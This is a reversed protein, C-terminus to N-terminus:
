QILTILNFTPNGLKGSHSMCNCYYYYFFRRLANNKEERWIIISPTTIVFETNRLFILLFHSLIIAFSFCCCCCNIESFRTSCLCSGSVLFCTEKHVLFISLGWNSMINKGHAWTFPLYGVYPMCMWNVKDVDTNALLSTIEFGEHPHVSSKCQYHHACPVTVSWICCELEIEPLGEALDVGVMHEPSGGNSSVLARCALPLM